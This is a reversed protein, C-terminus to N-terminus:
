YPYPPPNPPAPPAYQSQWQQQQMNPQQQFGFGQQPPPGYNNPQQMNPQYGYNQQMHQQQMDYSPPPIPPPPVGSGPAYTQVPMAGYQAANVDPPPVMSMGVQDVQNQMGQSRSMRHKITFIAFIMAGLGFTIEFAVQIGPGIVWTWNTWNDKDDQKNQWDKFMEYCVDLADTRGTQSEPLIPFRFNNIATQFCGHHQTTQNLSRMCSPSYQTCASQCEEQTSCFNWQTDHVTCKGGVLEEEGKVILVLNTGNIYQLHYPGFQRGNILMNIDMRMHHADSSSWINSCWEDTLVGSLKLQMALTPEMTVISVNRQKRHNSYIVMGTLDVLYCEVKGTDCSTANFFVNLDSHLFDGGVVGVPETNNPLFIAKAMTFLQLSTGFDQYVPTIIIRDKNHIATKYWGQTTHDYSKFMEVAPFIRFVGEHSGFYRWINYMKEDQGFGDWLELSNTLRIVNVAADTLVEPASQLGAVQNVYEAATTSTEDTNSYRSLDRFAAPTLKVAPSTKAEHDLHQCSLSSQTNMKHYVFTEPILNVNVGSLVKVPLQNSGTKVAICAVYQYNGPRSCSFVVPTNQMVDRAGNDKETIWDTSCGVTFTDSNRVSAFLQRLKPLFENRCDLGKIVVAVDPYDTDKWYRILPHHIVRGSTEVLFSYFLDSPLPPNPILSELSVDVGVAGKLEDNLVVPMSATLYLSLTGVATNPGSWSIKNVNQTSKSSFITEASSTDPWFAAVGKTVNLAANVGYSSGDQNAIEKVLGHVGIYNDLGFTSIEVSNQLDANRQKIVNFINQRSDTPEKTLILVIHKKSNRSGDFYDFAKSFAKSLKGNGSFMMFAIKAILFDKNTNTAYVLEDCETGSHIISSFAVVALRDTHQLPEAITKLIKVVTTKSFYESVDVIVVVDRPVDSIAKSYWPKARNDLKCDNYFLPTPLQALRGNLDMFMQRQIVPYQKLNAHAEKTFITPVFDELADTPFITCTIQDGFDTHCCQHNEEIQWESATQLASNLNRVATEATSVSTQISAALKQALTDPSVMETEWNAQDLRMELGSFHFTEEFVDHVTAAIQMSDSEMDACRVTHCLLLIEWILICNVSFFRM